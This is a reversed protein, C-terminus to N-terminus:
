GQGSAVAEFLWRAALLMQVGGHRLPRLRVEQVDPILKALVSLTDGQEAVVVFCRYAAIGRAEESDFCGRSIQEVADHVCDLAENGAMRDLVLRWLEPSGEVLYSDAAN